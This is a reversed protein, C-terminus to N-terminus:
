KSLRAALADLAADAAKANEVDKVEQIGKADKSDKLDNSDKADRRPRFHMWADIALRAAREAAYPQDALPTVLRALAGTRGTPLTGCEAARGSVRVLLKVLPEYRKRHADWEELAYRDGQSFGEVALSTAKRYPVLVADLTESEVGWDVWRRLADAQAIAQEAKVGLEVAALLVNATDIPAFAANDLPQGAAVANVLAVVAAKRADHFAGLEGGTYQRYAADDKPATTPRNTQEVLEALRALQTLFETSADRAVDTSEPGWAAVAAQVRRDVGGFPKPRLANLTKMVAPTRAVAARADLAKRMTEAQRRLVDANRSFTTSSAADIFTERAAEARRRADDAAKAYVGSLESSKAASLAALRADQQVFLEIAAMLKAGADPDAVRAASLAPAFRKLLDAPLQLADLRTLMQRYKGLAMVRRQGLTRTRPDLFMALGQAVQAEMKVRDEREVGTNAGLGEALTVAEDLVQRAEEADAERKGDREAEAAAQSVAVLQTRLPASVALVKARAALDEVTRAASGGTQGRSVDDEPRVPPRMPPLRAVDSAEAGLAAMLAGAVAASVGDAEPAKADNLKFTLEHLAKQPGGDGAGGSRAAADLEKEVTLAAVVLDGARIWAAAQADSGAPAESARALLWRAVIRVDIRLELERPVGASNDVRKQMLRGIEAELEAAQADILPAATFPKPQPSSAPQSQPPRQRQAQGVSPLLGGVVAFAVAVHRILRSATM